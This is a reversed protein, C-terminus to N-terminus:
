AIYYLNILYPSVFTIEPDFERISWHAIGYSFLTAITLRRRPLVAAAAIKKLHAALFFSGKGSARMLAAWDRAVSNFPLSRPVPFSFPHKGPRGMIYHFPHIDLIDHIDESIWAM